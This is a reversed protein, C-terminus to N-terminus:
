RGREPCRGGRGSRQVNHVGVPRREVEYSDLLEPGAWSALVWGMKWGIDYGDAIATNMGTGGRPTMRHVADGLFCRGEQYRDAIQISFCFSSSREFEVPLTSIAATRLLRRLEDDHPQPFLRSGIPHERFIGGTAAGARQLVGRADPHTIVYLGYRRDGVVDTLPARFEVRDYEDLADPGAM